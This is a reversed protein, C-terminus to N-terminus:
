YTYKVTYNDGNGVYKKVDSKSNSAALTPDMLSWNKGDFEIIHDVWGVEDVYCSIWAHYVDGSYGVELRTPINQSRLMASMLSAYDFCIGKKASLTEDPVPTYGYPLDQAKETDYSINNIVFDYINTVVDLDSECDMALSEGKSVLASEANFNVYHNPYLYPLFEDELTVDIDQTFAISYMDNEIDVSELISISYSGDGGSLPYVAYSGVDTVLYTYDIASPDEIQLKVKENTGSYNVMLYGQSVNSADISVIDNGFVTVASAEPTLIRATNDRPPGTHAESKKSGSSCASLLLISLFLGFFAFFRCSFRIRFSM